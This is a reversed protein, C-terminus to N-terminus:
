HHPTTRLPSGRAQKKLSPTHYPNIGHKAMFLRYRAAGPVCGILGGPCVTKDPTDKWAFDMAPRYPGIVNGQGSVHQIYMPEMSTCNGAGPSM